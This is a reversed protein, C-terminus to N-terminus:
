KIYLGEKIKSNNADKIIVNEKELGTEVIAETGVEIGKKVEKKQVMGNNVLWVYDTEEEKFLATLPVLLKNEEQFLTFELDTEYGNKLGLENENMSVTIEVKSEEVGLVSVVNQAYDDVKIVKGKGKVDEISNKVIIDVTDGAKIFNSDRASVLTKICLMNNMIIKAIKQNEQLINLNEIDMDNLIGDAIAEVTCKNIKNNIIEISNKKNEIQSKYYDQTSGNKSIQNIQSDISKIKTKYYETGGDDSTENIKYLEQRSQELENEAKKVAENIDDMEKKSVAGAEFLLSNQKQEEQITELIREKEKIVSQQININSEQQKLSNEMQNILAAREGELKQISIDDSNLATNMQAQISEIESQIQKKELEYSTSDIKLIIDGKSVTDGEKKFVKEIEGSVPSYIVAEDYPKVTGKEKFTKKATQLNVTFTEVSVAENGKAYVVGAIIILVVICIIIKKM